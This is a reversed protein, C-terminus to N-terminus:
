QDDCAKLVAALIKDFLKPDAYDLSRANVKWAPEVTIQDAWVNVTVLTKREGLGGCARISRKVSVVPVDELVRHMNIETWLHHAKLAPDILAKIEGALHMRLEATSAQQAPMM